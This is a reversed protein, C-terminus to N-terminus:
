YLRELARAVALTRGYPDGQIEADWCASLVAHVFGWAALERKDLELVESFVELRGPLLAVLEEATAQTPNLLYTGVDYGRAGVIGKPDIARYPEGTASLVNGHHLDAHLLVPNRDPGLERLLAQAGEQLLTPISSGYDGDLAQAWSQLSRFPNVEGVPRWLRRMLEATIHTHREDKDSTWVEQLSVGPLVRELLLASVADDRELLACIGNGGYHKLAESELTREDSPPSLKLICPTGDGNENLREAYAVVNWSLQPVLGTIRVRWATELRELTGPLGALWPGADDHVNHLTRVLTEPLQM